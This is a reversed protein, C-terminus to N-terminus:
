WKMRIFSNHSKRIYELKCDALDFKGISGPHIFEGNSATLKVTLKDDAMLKTLFRVQEDNLEATRGFFLVILECNSKEKKVLRELIHLSNINNKDNLNLDEKHPTVEPYLNFLIYGGFGEKMLQVCLRKNTADMYECSLAPNYGICIALKGKFNNASNFKIKEKFKYKYQTIANGKDSFSITEKGVFLTRNVTFGSNKWVECNKYTIKKTACM